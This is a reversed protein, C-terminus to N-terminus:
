CCCGHAPDRKPLDGLTHFSTVEYTDHPKFGHAQSPAPKAKGVLGEMTRSSDIRGTHLWTLPLTRHQQQMGSAVRRAIARGPHRCGM